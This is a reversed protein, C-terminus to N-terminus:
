AMFSCRLSPRLDHRNVVVAALVGLLLALAGLSPTHRSFRDPVIGLLAPVGGFRGPVRRFLGADRGVGGAIRGDGGHSRGAVRQHNREFMHFQNFFQSALAILDTPILLFGALAGSM